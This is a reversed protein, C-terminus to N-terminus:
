SWLMSRMQTTAPASTLLLASVDAAGVEAMCLPGSENPRAVAAELPLLALADIRSAQPRSCGGGGGYVANAAM